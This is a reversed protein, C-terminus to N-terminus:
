HTLKITHISHEEVMKSENVGSMQSVLALKKIERTNIINKGHTM